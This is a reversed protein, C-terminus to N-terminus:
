EALYIQELNYKKFRNFDKTLSLLAINRIVEILLVLDPSKLDVKLRGESSAGVLSAMEKTLEERELKGKDHRHRYVICFTGNFDGPLDNLQEKVLKEAAAKIDNLNAFCTVQVPMFRTIFKTCRRKEKPLALRKEFIEAVLEVPAKVKADSYEIFLM